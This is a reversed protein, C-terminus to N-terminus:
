YLSADYVPAVPQPHVHWTRLGRSAPELSANDLGLRHGNGPISGCPQGRMADVYLRVVGARVQSLM